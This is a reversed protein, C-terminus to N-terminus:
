LNSCKQFDTGGKSIEGIFCDIQDIAREAKPIDPQIEKILSDIKIDLRRIPVFVFITLLVIIIIFFLIVAILTTAM